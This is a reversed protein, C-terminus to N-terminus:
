TNRAAMKSTLVLGAQEQALVLISAAAAATADRGAARLDDVFVQWLRVIEAAFDPAMTKLAKQTGNADTLPQQGERRQAHMLYEHLGSKWGARYLPSDLKTLGFQDVTYYNSRTEDSTFFEFLTRAHLFASDMAYVQCHYGDIALGLGDQVVWENAARLLWHLENALHQELYGDPDNLPPLKQRHPQKRPGM